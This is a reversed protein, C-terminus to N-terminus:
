VIPGLEVEGVCGPAGSSVGTVYDFSVNIHLWAEMMIGLRRYGLIDVAAWYGMPGIENQYVYSLREEARM